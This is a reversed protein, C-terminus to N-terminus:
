LLKRRINKCQCFILYVACQRSLAGDIVTNICVEFIISKLFLPQYLAYSPAHDSPTINKQ